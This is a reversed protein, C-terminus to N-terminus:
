GVAHRFPAIEAPLPPRGKERIFNEVAVSIVGTTPDFRGHTLEFAEDVVDFVRALDPSLPVSKGSSANNLLSVESAVNWGNLFGDAKAFVDAAVQGVTAECAAADAALVLIVYPMRMATGAVRACACAAPNNESSDHAIHKAKCFVKHKGARAAAGDADVRRSVPLLGDERSLLGHFAVPARECVAVLSAASATEHSASPRAPPRASRASVPPAPPLPASPVCGM